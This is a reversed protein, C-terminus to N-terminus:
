FFGLVIMRLKESDAEDLVFLMRYQIDTKRARVTLTLRSDTIKDVSLVDFGGLNQQTEPYQPNSLGHPLHATLFDTLRAPDLSNNADFYLAALKGLPTDPMAPQSAASTATAVALSVALVVRRVVSMFM